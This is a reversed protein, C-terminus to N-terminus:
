RPRHCAAIRREADFAARAMTSLGMPPTAPLEHPPLGMRALTTTLHELWYPWADALGRTAALDRQASPDSSVAGAYILHFIASVSALAGGGGKPALEMSWGMLVAARQLGVAGYRVEEVDLTGVLPGLVAFRAIPECSAEARHLTVRELTAKTM